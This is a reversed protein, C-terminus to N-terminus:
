ELLYDLIDETALVADTHVPPMTDQTLEVGHLNGYRYRPAYISMNFIVEVM